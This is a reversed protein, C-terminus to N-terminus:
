SALRATYYAVKSKLSFITDHHNPATLGSVSASAYEWWNYAIKYWLSWENDHITPDLAM